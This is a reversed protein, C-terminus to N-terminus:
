QLTWLTLTLCSASNQFHTQWVLQYVLQYVLQVVLLITPVQLLITSIVQQQYSMTTSCYYKKGLTATFLIALTLSLVHLADAHLVAHPTHVTHPYAKFRTWSIPFMYMASYKFVFGQIPSM